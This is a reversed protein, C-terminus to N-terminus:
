RGWNWPLWRAREVEPLGRQYEMPRAGVVPPGPENEPYPDFREARARQYAATGAAGMRPGALGCCGATWVSLLATLVMTGARNM